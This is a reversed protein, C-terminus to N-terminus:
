ELSDLWGKVTLTKPHNEGFHNSLIKYAKVFSEKAKNTENLQSFTIGINTYNSANILHEKGFNKKDIMLAKYFLSMAEKFKNLDFLILALNSYNTAIVPHEEGFNKMDFDLVKELLKKARIFEGLDRLAMAWNSYNGITTPHDKGFKKENLSVVKELLFFARENDGIKRLVLALNSYRIATTPHEEGFNKEDSIIAKELLEKAGKYDGLDTLVLALNSYSTASMPHEDGFNLENSIMVNKLLHKAKQYCGLDRLIMGLNSYSIATNSHNKGFNKEDSIIVKEILKKAEEFDGLAKFVLALNNQLLGIKSNESDGFQSLIASGFEAWKFKDIPNDKAQDVQLLSSVSTILLEFKDENYDTRSKVVDSIIRHFIYADNNEILWGKRILTSLGLHLDDDLFQFVEELNDSTIDRTPLLTFLQLLYREEEALNSLDFISDLYSFVKQIRHDSHKIKVDTKLDKQLAAVLNEPKTKLEQATKALLEITLTHYELDKVLTKIFEDTLKEGKYHLNFLEVADEEDLFSLEMEDFNALKERSTVLVHWNPQSPLLNYIEDLSEDANDVILLNPTELGNMKGIISHILEPTREMKELGLSELLGPTSIFDNIINNTHTVWAIHKYSAWNESLYVMALTTKGIGGMGNMLVVQKQNFLRKELEQLETKRGVIQDFRLKPIVTTLEKPTLHNSLHETRELLKGQNEIIQTTDDIVDEIRDAIDALSFSISFIQEKYNEEVFLKNLEKNEEMNKLLLIYFCEIETKTPTAVLSDNELDIMLANVEGEEFLVFKSIKAFLTQSKYFCCQGHTEVQPHIKEFEDITAVIVKQLQIEYTDKPFLNNKIRKVWLDEQIIHSVVINTLFTAIAATTLIM